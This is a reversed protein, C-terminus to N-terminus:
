VLCLYFVFAFLVHASAFTINVILANLDSVMGPQAPRNLLRRAAFLEFCSSEGANIADGLQLECFLLVVGVVFSAAM